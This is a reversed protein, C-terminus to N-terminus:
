EKNTETETLSPQLSSFTNIHLKVCCQGTEEYKRYEKAWSGLAFSEIESEATVLLTGDGIIEAKM